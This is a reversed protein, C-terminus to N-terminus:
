NKSCNKSCCNTDFKWEMFLGTLLVWLLDIDMNIRCRIFEDLQHGKITGRSRGINERIPDLFHGYKKEYQIILHLHVKGNNKLWLLQQSYFTDSHFSMPDHLRKDKFVCHSSYLTQHCHSM